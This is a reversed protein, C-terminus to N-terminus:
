ALQSPRPEVRRSHRVRRTGARGASPARHTPCRSLEYDRRVLMAVGADIEADSLAKLTRRGVLGAAPGCAALITALDDVHVVHVTNRMANVRVLGDARNLRSALAAPDFDDIRAWASLYPTAYDTSHLGISDRVLADIDVATRQRYFRAARLRELLIPATM